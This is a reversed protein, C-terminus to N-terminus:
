DEAGTVAASLARELEDCDETRLFPLLMNGGLAHIVLFNFGTIGSLPSSVRTVYQATKLKMQERRFFILGTHVTIDDASLCVVTRRFYAPLLWFGFLLGLFVFIAILVYMLIDFSGLYRWVLYSAAGTVIAILGCIIYLASPKLTFKRM